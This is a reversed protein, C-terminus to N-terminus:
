TAESCAPIIHGGLRDSDMRTLFERDFDPRLQSARVRPRYMGSPFVRFGHGVPLPCHRYWADM